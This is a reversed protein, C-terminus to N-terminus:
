MTRLSSLIRIAMGVSNSYSLGVKTSVEYRLCRIVDEQIPDMVGETIYMKIFCGINM